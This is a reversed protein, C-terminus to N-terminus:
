AGLEEVELLILVGAVPCVVYCNGNFRTAAPQTATFSLWEVAPLELETLEGDFGTLAAITPLIQVFAPTANNTGIILTTNVGTNNSWMIKRIVYSRSPFTVAQVTMIPMTHLLDGLAPAATTIVLGANNPKRIGM